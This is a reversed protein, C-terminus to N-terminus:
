FSPFDLSKYPARSLKACPIFEDSLMYSYKASVCM